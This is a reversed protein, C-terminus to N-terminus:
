VLEPVHLHALVLEYEKSATIAIGLQEIGMQNLEESRQRSGDLAARDDFGVTIVAEGVAREVLVSVSCFGPMEEILPLFGTRFAEINEDAKAPDGRLWVTRVFSGQPARHDRHMLVLEWETFDITESGLVEAARDRMPQLGQRSSRLDDETQWSTTVICEGSSRDVIMSLGLCGAMTTVAPLTEDRIFAIGRDIRGLDAHATNSRAFM